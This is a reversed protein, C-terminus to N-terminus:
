YSISAFSVDCGVSQHYLASDSIGVGFVDLSKDERSAAAVASFSQDGPILDWSGQWNRGNWSNHMMSSATRDLAFTDLRDEGWSVIVPAM